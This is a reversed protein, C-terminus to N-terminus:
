LSNYFSAPVKYVYVGCKVCYADEGWYHKKMGTINPRPGASPYQELTKAKPHDKRITITTHRM